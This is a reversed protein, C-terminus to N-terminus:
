STVIDRHRCAMDAVSLRSAQPDGVGLDLRYIMLVYAAMPVLAFPVWGVDRQPDLVTGGALGVAAVVVSGLQIYVVDVVLYIGATRRSFQWRRGRPRIRVARIHMLIALVLFVLPFVVQLVDNVATLGDGM